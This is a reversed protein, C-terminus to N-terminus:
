FSVVQVPVGDPVAAAPGAVIEGAETKVAAVLAAPTVQSRTWLGVLASVVALILGVQEPTAPAGYGVALAILAGILSAIISPESNVVKM